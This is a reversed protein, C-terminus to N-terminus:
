RPLENKNLSGFMSTRARRADSYYAYLTLTNHSFVALAACWDIIGTHRFGYRQMEYVLLSELVLFLLGFFYENLIRQMKIQYSATPLKSDATMRMGIEVFAINLTLLARQFFDKDDLATISVAVFNLMGLLPMINRDYYSSNRLVRLKVDLCMDCNSTNSGSGGGGGGGVANFASGGEGGGSGFGHDLPHFEFTLGHQKNYQFEPIAVQDVVLGHPVRVSGQSDQPTALALKWVTRDWVAGPTRHALVALRLSIEHADHPFNEVQWHEQCVTARYMCSWRMLLSENEDERLVSVEPDGITDFTAVNLISVAPVDVVTAAGPQPAEKTELVSVPPQLIAQQRGMMRYKSGSQATKQSGGAQSQAESDATALQQEQDASTAAPTNWFITVRFTVPVRGQVMDVQGVHWWVVQFRITNTTRDNDLCGYRPSDMFGSNYYELLTPISNGSVSRSPLPSEDEGSLPIKLLPSGETLANCNARNYAEVPSALHANLPLTPLQQVVKPRPSTAAGAGDGGGGVSSSSSKASNIYSASSLENLARHRSLNRELIATQCHEVVVGGDTTTAVQDSVRGPYVRAEYAPRSMKSRSYILAEVALWSALCISCHAQSKSRERERHLPREDRNFTWCSGTTQLLVLQKPKGNLFEQRLTVDAWTM